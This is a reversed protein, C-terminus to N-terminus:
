PGKTTASKVLKNLAKDAETPNLEGSDILRQAAEKFREGQETGSAGKPKRNTM